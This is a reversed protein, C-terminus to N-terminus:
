AFAYYVTTTPSSPPFNFPQSRVPPHLGENWDVTAIDDLAGNERLKTYVDWDKGHWPYVTM